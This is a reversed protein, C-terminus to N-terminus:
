GACRSDANANTVAYGDYGALSWHSLNSFHDNLGLFKVVCCGAGCLVVDQYEFIAIILENLFHSCAASNQELVTGFFFGLELLCHPGVCRVIVNEVSSDNSLVGLLDSLDSLDINRFICNNEHCFFVACTKIM